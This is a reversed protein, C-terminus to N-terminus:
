MYKLCSVSLEIDLYTGTGFAEFETMSVGTSGNNLVAIHRARVPGEDPDAINVSLNAPYHNKRYNQFDWERPAQPPDDKTSTMILINKLREM